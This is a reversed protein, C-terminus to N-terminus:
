NKMKGRFSFIIEIKRQEKGALEYRQLEFGDGGIFRIVHSKM